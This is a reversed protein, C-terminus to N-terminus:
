QVKRSSPAYLLPDPLDDNPTWPALALANHLAEGARALEIAAAALLAQTPDAQWPARARAWLHLARGLIVAVDLAHDSDVDVNELQPIADKFAESTELVRSLLQHPETTGGSAAAKKTMELATSYIWAVHTEIDHLMCAANTDGRSM